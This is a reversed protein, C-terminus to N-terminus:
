IHLDQLLRVTMVRLPKRSSALHEAASSKDHDAAPKYSVTEPAPRRCDIQLIEGPKPLGPLVPADADKASATAAAMCLHATRRLLSCSLVLSTVDVISCANIPLLPLANACAM